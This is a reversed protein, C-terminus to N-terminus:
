YIFLEDISVYDFTDGKFNDWTLHLALYDEDSMKKAHIDINRYELWEKIMDGVIYGNVIWHGNFGHSKSIIAPGDLRSIEGNKIWVKSTPTTIAPGNVRHLTGHNYYYKSNGTIVAPGDKEDRHFKDNDDLYLKELEDEYIFYRKDFMNYM